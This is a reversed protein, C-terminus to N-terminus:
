WVVNLDTQQGLILTFQMESLASSHYFDQKKAPKNCIYRILINSNTLLNSQQNDTM